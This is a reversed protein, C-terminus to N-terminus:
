GQYCLIALRKADERRGELVARALAHTMVHWRGTPKKEEVKKEVKKEMKKEVKKEVKKAKQDFCPAMNSSCSAVPM